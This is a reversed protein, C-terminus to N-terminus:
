GAKREGLQAEPQMEKILVSELSERHRNYALVRAGRALAAGLVEQAEGARVFQLIYVSGRRQAAVGRRRIEEIVRPDIRDMILEVAPNEDMFHRDVDIVRQLKGGVLIGVRDCMTEVDPLIHSSFLVTGGRAKVEFIKERVLRRGLPDLGSMPEDLILLDPDGLLAQALGLRQVMGKSMKKLKQGQSGSLELDELLKECAARREPGGMGLLSGCYDLFERATLYLYFSPNEALYGIGRRAESDGPEKGFLSVTGSTPRLLGLLLKIATSKGAGNPGLLGFVEGSRVQLDLGALATIRKRKFSSVFVKRLGATSVVENGRFPVIQPSFPRGSNSAGDARARDRPMDQM